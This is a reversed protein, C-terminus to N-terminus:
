ELLLLKTCCFEVALQADEKDRTQQENYRFPTSPKIMETV